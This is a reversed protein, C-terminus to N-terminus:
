MMANIDLLLLEDARRVNKLKLLFSLLIVGFRGTPDLSSSQIHTAHCCCYSLQQWVNSFSSSPLWCGCLIKKNKRYDPLKIEKQTNSSSSSNSSINGNGTGRNDGDLRTNFCDNDNVDQSIGYNKTYEYRSTLIKNSEVSEQNQSIAEAQTRSITRIFDQIPADLKRSYEAEFLMMCSTWHYIEENSNEFIDISKVNINNSYSEINSDCAVITGKVAISSGIM